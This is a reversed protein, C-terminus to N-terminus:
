QRVRLFPAVGFTGSVGYRIWLNAHVENVLYTCAKGEEGDQTGAMELKENNKLIDMASGANVLSDSGRRLYVLAHFM